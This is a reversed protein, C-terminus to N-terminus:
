RVTTAWRTRTAPRMHLQRARVALLSPDATREVATQVAQAQASLRAIAQQQHTIRIAQQQMATNLLLVAVVGFSLLSALLLAWAAERFRHADRRRAV